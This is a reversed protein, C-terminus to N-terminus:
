KKNDRNLYQQDFLNIVEPGFVDNMYRYIEQNVQEQEQKVVLRRKLEERMVSIWKSAEDIEAKNKKLTDYCIEMTKLMLEQNVREIEGPLRILQEEYEALKDNCESVLLKHEELKEEAKKDRGNAIDDAFQVIEQLLRKKLKRLGKTETNAKGQKKILENLEAELKKLKKDTEVKVFLQHWKNDLTLVPVKKGRLAERFVEDTRETKETRSM